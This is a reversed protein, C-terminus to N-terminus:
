WGMRQIVTAGAGLFSLATAGGIRLSHAGYASGELGLAAVMSRLKTRVQAVSRAGLRAALMSGLLSTFCESSPCCTSFDLRM